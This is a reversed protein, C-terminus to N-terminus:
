AKPPFAKLPQSPNKAKFDHMHQCLDETREQLPREAVPAFAFPCASTCLQLVLFARQSLSSPPVRQYGSSKDVRPKAHTAPVRSVVRPTPQMHVFAGVFYRVM